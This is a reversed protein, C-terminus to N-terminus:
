RATTSRMGEASLCSTRLLLLMSFRAHVGRSTTWLTSTSTVMSVVFVDFESAGLLSSSAMRIKRRGDPVFLKRARSFSAEDRKTHGLTIVGIDSSFLFIDIESVDSLFSEGLRTNRQGNGYLGFCSQPCVPLRSLFVILASPRSPFLYWVAYGTLESM